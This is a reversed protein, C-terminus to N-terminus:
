KLAALLYVMGLLSVAISGYQTLKKDIGVGNSRGQRLMWLLAFLPLVVLLHGLEVGVSFALIALGTSMTPIGSLADLLGGAFGLGHFLGFVFAVVGRSWGRSQKPWFINQMAVFVISAAIMPEVITASLRVVDLAVLLLTTTHALTFAGIVKLLEWLGSIALLLAGLFLLHDYGSLIHLVGLQVYTADIGTHEAQLVAMKKRGTDYSIPQAFTLLHGEDAVVGHEGISVIYSAEWRKGPAFELERLVDQRMVLSLPSVSTLPYEFEYVLRNNVRQPVGVGRGILLNDDVKIYFHALLYDGHKLLAEPYQWTKGTEGSSAAVLVEENSVSVRLHLRDPFIMMQMAGQAVPHAEARILFVNCFFLLTM